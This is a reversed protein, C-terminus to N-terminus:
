PAFLGNFCPLVMLEKCKNTFNPDVSKKLKFVNEVQDYSEYINFTNRVWELVATGSESAGEVGYLVVDKYKFIVTALMGKFSFDPADGTCCMMFSGSGLTLKM